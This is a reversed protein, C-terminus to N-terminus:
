EPVVLVLGAPQRLILAGVIKGPTPELRNRARGGPVVLVVIPFATRLAVVAVVEARPVDDHQVAVARIHIPAADARGLLDPEPAVERCVSDAAGEGVPMM